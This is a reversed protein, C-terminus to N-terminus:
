CPSNRVLRRARMGVRPRGPWRWSRPNKRSKKPRSSSIVSEIQLGYFPQKDRALEVGTITGMEDEKPATGDQAGAKAAYLALGGGTIALSFLALALFRPKM